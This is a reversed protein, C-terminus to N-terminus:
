QTWQQGMKSGLSKLIQTQLPQDDVWARARCLSLSTNSMQPDVSNKFPRSLALIHSILFILTDLIIISITTEASLRYNEFNM